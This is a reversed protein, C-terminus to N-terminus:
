SKGKPWNELLNPLNNRSLSPPPFYVKEGLFPFEGSWGLFLTLVKSLSELTKPQEPETNGNYLYILLYETGEIAVDLVLIRGSNEEFFLQYQWLFWSFSQM